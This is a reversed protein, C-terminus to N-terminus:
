GKERIVLAEIDAVRILTRAGIHVPKLEGRGILKYVTSRSVGLALGAEKISFLLKPEQRSTAPPPNRPPERIVPAPAMPKTQEARARRAAGALVEQCDNVARVIINRLSWIEQPTLNM